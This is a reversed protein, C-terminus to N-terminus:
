FVPSESFLNEPLKKVALFTSLCCINPTFIYYFVFCENYKKHILLIRYSYINLELSTHM